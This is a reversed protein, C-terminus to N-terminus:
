SPRPSKGPWKKAESLLKAGNVTVHLLSDKGKNGLQELFYANSIFAQTRIAETGNMLLGGFMAFNTNTQMKNTAPQEASAVVSKLLPNWIKPLIAVLKLSVKGNM